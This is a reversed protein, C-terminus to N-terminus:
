ASIEKEDHYVQTFLCSLAHQGFRDKWNFERSVEARYIGIRTKSVPVRVTSSWIMSRSRDNTLILGIGCFGAM